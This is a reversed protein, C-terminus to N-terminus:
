QPRIMVFVDLENTSLQNLDTEIGKPNGIRAEPDYVFCVLTKCDPHVKYKAIDIILQEGVYKDALGSRTKKIEVIIQENKMLFDARAAGGAYSPMWEESRIDEFYLKLLAHFLDQVDYEDEIEITPRNSHRNRLQRAVIHFNQCLMEIHSIASSTGTLKSKIMMKIEIQRILRSTKAIFEELIAIKSLNSILKAEYAIHPPTKLGQCAAISDRTMASKPRKILIVDIESVGWKQKELDSIIENEKSFKEDNEILILETSIMEKLENAIKITEEIPPLLDILKLGCYAEIHNIVECDERERWEPAIGHMGAGGWEIDFMEQRTPKRFNEYYLKSHYGMWSGSWTQAITNTAETLKQLENKIEALGQCAVAVEAVKSKINEVSQKLM